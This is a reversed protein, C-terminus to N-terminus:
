NNNKILDRINKIQKKYHEQPEKLLIFHLLLDVIDQYKQTEINTCINNKNELAFKQMQVTKEKVLEEALINLDKLIFEDDKKILANSDNKYQINNNEPFEKNFHIEETLLRPIDYVKKFIALMKDFSLYDQRENGYNNIYINNYNTIYNNTQNQINNFTNINQKEINECNPTKAYIISRPKCNNRKIHKSKAQKTTFNTMCRPCTLEDIGKCKKQHELLSKKTKYFKNCKICINDINECPTIKKECPSVKKENPSVKKENPSVKKENEVLEYNDCKINNHRSIHHRNFNYKRNSVYNCLNCKYINQSYNHTM